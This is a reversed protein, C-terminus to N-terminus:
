NSQPHFTITFQIPSTRGRQPRYQGLVPKRYVHSGEPTRTTTLPPNYSSKYRDIVIMTIYDFRFIVRGEVEFVADDVDALVALLAFDILLPLPYLLTPECKRLRSGANVYEELM